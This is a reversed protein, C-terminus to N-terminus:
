IPATSISRWIAFVDTRTLGASNRGHQWTSACKQNPICLACTVPAWKRMPMVKLRTTNTRCPTMDTKDYEIFLRDHLINVACFPNYGKFDDPNLEIEWVRIGESSTIDHGFWPLLRWGVSPKFDKVEVSAKIIVDEGQYAEYSIMKEPGLGGM